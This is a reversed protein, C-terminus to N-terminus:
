PPTGEEKRQIGTLCLVAFLLEIGTKRLTCGASVLVDFTRVNAEYCAALIPSHGEPNALDM